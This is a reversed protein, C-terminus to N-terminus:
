ETLITLQIGVVVVVVVVVVAGDFTQTPFRIRLPSKSNPASPLEPPPPFAVSQVPPLISICENDYVL